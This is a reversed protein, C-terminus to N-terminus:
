WKGSYRSLMSSPPSGFNMCPLCCEASAWARAQSSVASLLIPSTSSGTQSCVQFSEWSQSVASPCVSWSLVASASVGAAYGPEGGGPFRHRVRRDEVAFFGFWAARAADVDGGYVEGADFVGDFYDDGCESM